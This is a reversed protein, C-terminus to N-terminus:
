ERLNPLDYIELLGNRGLLALHRGDPSLAASYFDTVKSDRVEFRQPEPGYPADYVLLGRLVTHSQVDLWTIGGTEVGTLIVFRAANRATAAELGMGDHGRDRVPWATKGDGSALFQGLLKPKQKLDNRNNQLATYLLLGPGVAADCRSEDSLPAAFVQWGAGNPIWTLLASSQGSPRTWIQDNAVCTIGWRRPGSITGLVQLNETNVWIWPGATTLDTLLLLRRGDPSVRPFYRRELGPYHTQPPPLPLTLEKSIEFHQDILALRNSSLLVLGADTVAAIQSWRSFAPWHQEALVKGTRASILIGNLQFEAGADAHARPSLTPNPARGVFSLILRSNDLFSLFPVQPWYGRDPSNPVPVARDKVLPATRIVVAPRVQVAAEDSTTFSIPFFVPAFLVTFLTPLYTSLSILRSLRVSASRNGSRRAPATM